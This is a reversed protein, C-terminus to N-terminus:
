GLREEDHGAIGEPLPDLAASAVARRQRQRQHHRRPGRTCDREMFFRASIESRIAVGSKAAGFGGGGGNLTTSAVMGSICAARWDPRRVERWSTCCYRVRM